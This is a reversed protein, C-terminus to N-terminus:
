VALFITVLGFSVPRRFLIFFFFEMFIACLIDRYNGKKWYYGSRSVGFVDNALPLACLSLTLLVLARVILRVFTLACSFSILMLNHFQSHKIFCNQTIM